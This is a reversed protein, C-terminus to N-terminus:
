HGRERDRCDGCYRARDKMQIKYDELMLRCWRCRAAAIQDRLKPPAAQELSRL